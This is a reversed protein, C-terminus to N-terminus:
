QILTSGVMICLVKGTSMPCGEGVDLEMAVRGFNAIWFLRRFVGLKTDVELKRQPCQCFSPM